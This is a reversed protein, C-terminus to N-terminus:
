APSPSPFILCTPHKIRTPIFPSAPPVQMVIGDRDRTTGVRAVRRIACRGGPKGPRASTSTATASSSTSAARARHRRTPATSASTSKATATITSIARLRPAKPKSPTRPQAPDIARLGGWGNMDAMMARNAPNKFETFKWYRGVATAPAAAYANLYDRPPPPNFSDLAPALPVQNIGYGTSTQFVALAGSVKAFSFAPCSAFLSRDFEPQNMITSTAPTTGLPPRNFVYRALQDYWPVVVNGVYRSRYTPVYGKQENVYLHLAQGLSRLNSACKVTAANRRAGAITPLLIGLLVSIIGIVVLLEVLTFARRRCM